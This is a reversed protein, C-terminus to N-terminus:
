QTHEFLWNNARVWNELTGSDLYEGDASVIKMTGGRSVFQNIPETILYEGSLNTQSVYQETLKLLEYSFVYKSINIMDSPAEDINPKEHIKIFNGAEDAELVGYSPLKERAVHIGLMSAGDDSAATILRAIQSDVENYVCDDGGIVVVSEGVPIFPVVRSVADATGRNGYNQQTVYHFKINPPTILPLLDEKGNRLLYDKLDINTRYYDRIQTSQESVVFYIDTIGAAICDQVVYDVVPRNGIPLMCKEITKTVPLRRTGYGAVM